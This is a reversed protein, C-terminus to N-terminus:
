IRISRPCKRHAIQVENYYGFEGIIILVIIIFKHLTHLKHLSNVLYPSWTVAPVVCLTEAKHGREWRSGCMQRDPKLSQWPATSNRKPDHMM